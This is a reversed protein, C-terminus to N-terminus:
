TAMNNETTVTKKELKIPHARGNIGHNPRDLISLNNVTYPQQDTTVVLEFYQFWKKSSRSSLTARESNRVAM